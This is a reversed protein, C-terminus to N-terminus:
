PRWGHADAWPRASVQNAAYDSRLTDSTLVRMPIGEVAHADFPGALTEDRGCMFRRCNYPRVDYAQCTGGTEGALFFPCPRAVLETFLPRDGARWQLILELKTAVAELERREAFTMAVSKPQTCCDGSRHCTWM